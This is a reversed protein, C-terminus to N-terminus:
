YTIIIEELRELSDVKKFTKCFKKLAQITITMTTFYMNMREETEEKRFSIMYPDKSPISIWSYAGLLESMEKVLKSVIPKM